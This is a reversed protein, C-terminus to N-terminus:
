MPKQTILPEVVCSSAFCWEKADDVGERAQAGSCNLEDVRMSSMWGRSLQAGPLAAPLEPACIEGAAEEPSSGVCLELSRRVECGLVSSMQEPPHPWLIMTEDGDLLYPTISFGRVGSEWAGRHQVADMAEHSDYGCPGRVNRSIAVLSSLTYDSTTQRVFIGSVFKIWSCVLSFMEVLHFHM